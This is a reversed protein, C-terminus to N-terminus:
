SLAADIIEVVRNKEEKTMVPYLIKAKEIIVKWAQPYNDRIFDMSIMHTDFNTHCSKGYYCLEIGNEPHHRISPFQNKRKAFLHAASNRFTKDNDKETRGGCFLCRGTMAVRQLAFWDEDKEKEPKRDREIQEKKKESMPAIRKYTAGKPM